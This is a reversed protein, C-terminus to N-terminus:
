FCSKALYGIGKVRSVKYFSGSKVVWLKRGKGVTTLTESKADAKSKMLCIKATTKFAGQGSTSAMKEAAKKLPEKKATDKTVKKPPTMESSLSPEGKIVPLQGVSESVPLPQPTETKLETAAGSVQDDQDMISPTSEEADKADPRLACASLGQFIVIALFLMVMAKKM